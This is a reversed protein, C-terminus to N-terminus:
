SNEGRSIKQADLLKKLKKEISRYSLKSASPRIIIFVDMGMSRKVHNAVVMRVQRKIRNRAVANGYKKGVSVAFRFHSLNNPKVYLSFFGDAKKRRANLVTKIENSDKIRYQKRM